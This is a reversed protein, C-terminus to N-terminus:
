VRVATPRLDLPRVMSHDYAHSCASSIRGLDHFTFRSTNRITKHRAHWHRPFVNGDGLIIVVNIVNMIEQLYWIIAALCKKLRYTPKCPGPHSYTSPIGGRPSTRSQVAFARAVSGPWSRLTRVPDPRAGQTGRLRSCSLFGCGFSFCFASPGFFCM